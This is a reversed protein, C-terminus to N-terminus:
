TAPPRGLGGSDYPDDSRFGGEPISWGGGSVYARKLLPRGYGQRAAGFRGRLREAGSETTAMIGQFTLDEASAPAQVTMVLYGMEM